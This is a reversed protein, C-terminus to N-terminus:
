QFRQHIIEVKGDLNIENQLRIHMHEGGVKNIRPFFSSRLLTFGTYSAIFVVLIKLHNIDLNSLFLRQKIVGNRIGWRRYDWTCWALNVRGSQIFKPM